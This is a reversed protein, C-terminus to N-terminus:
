DGRGRPLYEVWCPYDLFRNVRTEIGESETYPNLLIRYGWKSRPITEIGERDPYTNLKDHVVDLVIHQLRLGRASPTNRLCNKM